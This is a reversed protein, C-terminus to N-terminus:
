RGGLELLVQARHEVQRETRGPQGPPVGDHDIDEAAIIRVQVVPQDVHHGGIGADLDM